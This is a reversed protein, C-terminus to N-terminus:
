EDDGACSDGDGDHAKSHDKRRRAQLQKLAALVKPLSSLLEQYIRLAAVTVELNRGENVVTCSDSPLRLLFYHSSIHAFRLTQLHGMSRLHARFQNHLQPEYVQVVIYSLRGINASNRQWAHAVGKGATRSYLTVVSSCGTLVFVVM